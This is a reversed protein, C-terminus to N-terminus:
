PTKVRRHMVRQQKGYECQPCSLSLFKLPISQLLTRLGIRSRV